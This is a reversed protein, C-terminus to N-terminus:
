GRSVPVPLPFAGSVSFQGRNERIKYLAANTGFYIERNHSVVPFFDSHDPDASVKDVFTLRNNTGWKLILIGKRPFSSGTELVNDAIFLHDGMRAVGRPSTLRRPDSYVQIPQAGAGTGVRYLGAAYGLPHESAFILSNATWPDLLGFGPQHIGTQNATIATQKLVAPNGPTNPDFEYRALRNDFCCVWFSQLAM